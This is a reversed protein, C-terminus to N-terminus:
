RGLKKIVFMTLNLIFYLPLFVIKRKTNNKIIDDNVINKLSELFAVFNELMLYVKTYDIQEIYKDLKQTTTITDIIKQARIDYTHNQKIYEKLKQIDDNKSEIYKKAIDVISDNDYELYHTDKTFIEEVGNEVIKDTLLMAGNGLAEFYRMNIDNNISKNFVIKAQSYISYMEQGSAGGFYSNPFEKQLKEILEFRVPHMEKNNSGVYAIDYVRDLNHSPAMTDDYALPLWFTNILGKNTFYKIYEKQALFTVDFFKAIELHKHLDMHTDIGYWATKCELKELGQPFLKMSGGECFFVLEPNLNNNKTYDYIDFTQNIITDIKVYDSEIDSLVVVEHGLNKFSKILSLSTTYSYVSAVFIINM